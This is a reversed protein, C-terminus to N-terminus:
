IRTDGGLMRSLKFHVGCGCYKQNYFEYQKVLEIRRENLGGKRWNKERFEVGDFQTAAWHGARAIQELSKHRSAALSTAFLPVGRDHALRATALLRMKFCQLCRAGREPENELGSVHELWFDYGCDGDVFEVGLAAAYRIVEGKRRHYESAPYINPNYFFLIPRIGASLLWEIIAASCPACCTHLIIM